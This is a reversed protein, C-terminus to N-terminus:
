GRYDAGLLMSYDDIIAKEQKYFKVMQKNSLDLYLKAKIERVYISPEDIYQLAKRIRHKIYKSAKSEPRDRVQKDQKHLFKYFIICRSILEKRYREFFPGDVQKLIHTSADLILKMVPLEKETYKNYKIKTKINPVLCYLTNYYKYKKM